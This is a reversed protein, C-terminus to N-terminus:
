NKNKNFCHELCCYRGFEYIVYEFTAFLQGDLGYNVFPQPIFLYYKNDKVFLLLPESIYRFDGYDNKALLRKKLYGSDAYYIDKPTLGLPFNLQWLKDNSLFIIQPKGPIATGFTLPLSVGKWYHKKINPLKELNIYHGYEFDGDRNLVFTKFLFAEDTFKIGFPKKLKSNEVEKTFLNPVIPFELPSYIGNYFITCTNFFEEYEMYKNNYLIDRGQYTVIRAGNLYDKILDQSGLFLKNTTRDIKNIFSANDFCFYYRSFWPGYYYFDNKVLYYYNDVLITKM